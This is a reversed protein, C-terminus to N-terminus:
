MPCALFPRSSYLAVRWPLRRFKRLFHHKVLHSSSFIPAMLAKHSDLFKAVWRIWGRLCLVLTVRPTAWSGAALATQRVWPDRNTSSSAADAKTAASTTAPLQPRPQIQPAHTPLASSVPLLILPIPPFAAMASLMQGRERDRDQDRERDCLGRDHERDPGGYNGINSGPGMRQHNHVQNSWRSSSPSCSHPSPSHSASLLRTPLQLNYGPSLRRM